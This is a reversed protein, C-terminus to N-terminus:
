KKKLITPKKVQAKDKYSKVPSDPYIFQKEKKHSDKEKGVSHAANLFPIIPTASLPTDRHKAM